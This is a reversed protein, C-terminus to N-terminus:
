ILAPLCLRVDIMRLAADERLSEWFRPEKEDTAEKSAKTGKRPRTSSTTADLKSNNKEAEQVLWTHLFVARQLASRWLALDADSASSALARKCGRTVNKVASFIVECTRKQVAQTMNAFSRVISYLLAFTEKDEIRLANNERLCVSTDKLTEILDITRLSVQLLSPSSPPARLPFFRLAEARVPEVREALAQEEELHLPCTPMVFPM